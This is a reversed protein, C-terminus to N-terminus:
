NIKLPLNENRIRYEAVVGHMEGKAKLIKLRGNYVIVLKESGNWKIHLSNSAPQGDVIFLNGKREPLPSSSPLISVQTSIGSGSGCDRKFIIAKSKRNPSLMQYTVTNQCMESIMSNLNAWLIIFLVMLVVIMAGSKWALGQSLKDM